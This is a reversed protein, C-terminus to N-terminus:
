NINGNGFRMGVDCQSQCLYLSQLAGKWFTGHMGQCSSTLVGSRLAYRSAAIIQMSPFCLVNLLSYECFSKQACDCVRMFEMVLV